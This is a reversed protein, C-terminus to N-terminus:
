DFNRLIVDYKQYVDSDAMKSSFWFFDSCFYSRYHCKRSNRYFFCCLIASDASVTGLQLSQAAVITALGNVVITFPPFAAKQFSSLTTIEGSELIRLSRPIPFSVIKCLSIAERHHKSNFKNLPLPQDM